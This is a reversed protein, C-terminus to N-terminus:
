RGLLNLQEMVEVDGTLEETVAAESVGLGGASMLGTVAERSSGFMGESGGTLEETVTAEDGALSAGL